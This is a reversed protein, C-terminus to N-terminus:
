HKDNFTLTEGLSLLVQVADRELDMLMPEESRGEMKSLFSKEPESPGTDSRIESNREMCSGNESRDCTVLPSLSQYELEAESTQFRLHDPPTIRNPILYDDVLNFSSLLTNAAEYEADSWSQGEEPADTCIVKNAEELSTNLDGPNSKLAAPFAIHAASICEKSQPAEQHHLTLLDTIVQDEQQSLQIIVFRPQVRPRISGTSWDPTGLNYIPHPGARFPDPHNPPAVCASMIPPPTNLQTCKFVVKENYIRKGCPLTPDTYFLEEPCM